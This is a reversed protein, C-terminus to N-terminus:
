NSASTPDTRAAVAEGHAPLDEAEALAIFHHAVDALADRDYELVHIGRLFTQVGLGGSHRAAGGTPLVPNCGAAFGGFSDPCNDGGCIPGANRVRAALAPCAATLNRL